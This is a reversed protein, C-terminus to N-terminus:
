RPKHRNKYKTKDTRRLSDSLTFPVLVVIPDKLQCKGDVDYSNDGAGFQAPDAGGIM